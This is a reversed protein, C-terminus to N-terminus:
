ILDEEKAFKSHICKSYIKNFNRLILSCEFSSFYYVKSGDFELLEIKLYHEGKLRSVSGRILNSLRYEKETSLKKNAFSNVLEIFFLIQYDRKLIPLGDIM